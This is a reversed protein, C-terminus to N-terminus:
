LYAPLCFVSATPMYGCIEKNSARLFRSSALFNILSPTSGERSLCNFFCFIKSFLSFLKSVAKLKGCHAKHVAACL